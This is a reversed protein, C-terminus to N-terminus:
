YLRLRHLIRNREQKGRNRYLYYLYGNWIQVNEIFGMPVTVSTKLSGDELNIQYFRSGWNTRFATYAEQRYPDFYIRKKWKERQHYNIAQSRVLEGDADFYELQSAFHNFLCFLSDVPHLPAYLRPYFARWIGQLGYSSERLNRLKDPVEEEWVDGSWPLRCGTEEILLVINRDDEILPFKLMGRKPDERHTRYYQLAQGQYYYRKFYAMSDNAWVCNALGIDFDERPIRPGFSLSKNKIKIEKVGNGTVLFLAGACSSHLRRPKWKRLSFEELVEENPGLLVLIFGKRSNKCALLILHDQYFAYDTVSYPKRYVTDILNQARVTIDPLDLIASVLVIQPPLDSPSELILETTEYNLHSLILTAPLTPVELQFFGNEDTIAGILFTGELGIHAGVIAEGKEDVVVAELLVSEEQALLNTTLSSLLLM